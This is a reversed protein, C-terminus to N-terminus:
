SAKEMVSINNVVLHIYKASSNIVIYSATFQVSKLYFPLGSVLTIILHIEFSTVTEIKERKTLTEIKDKRILTTNQQPDVTEPQNSKRDTKLFETKSQDVKEIAECWTSVTSFAHTTQKTPLEHLQRTEVSVTSFIEQRSFDQLRIL